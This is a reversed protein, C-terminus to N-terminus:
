VIAYLDDRRDRITALSLTVGCDLSPGHSRKWKLQSCCAAVAIAACARRANIAGPWRATGAVCLCVISLAPVSSRGSRFRSVSDSRRERWNSIPTQRIHRLAAASIARRSRRHSATPAFAASIFDADDHRSTKGASPANATKQFGSLVRRAPKRRPTTQDEGPPLRLQDARRGAWTRVRHPAWGGLPCLNEPSILPNFPTWVPKRPGNKSADIARM